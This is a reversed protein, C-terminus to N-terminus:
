GLKAACAYFEHVNARPASAVTSRGTNPHIPRNKQCPTREWNEETPQIKNRVHRHALNCVVVNRVMEEDGNRETPAEEVM